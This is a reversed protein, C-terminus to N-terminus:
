SAILGLGDLMLQEMDYMVDEELHRWTVPPIDGYTTKLYRLTEEVKMDNKGRMFWYAILLSIEKYQHASMPFIRNANRGMPKSARLILPSFLISGKVPTESEFDLSEQLSIAFERELDFILFTPGLPEVSTIAQKAAELFLDGGIHRLKLDTLIRYLVDIITANKINM